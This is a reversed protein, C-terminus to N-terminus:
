LENEKGEELLTPYNLMFRRKYYYKSLFYIFILLVIYWPFLIAILIIFLFSGGRMYLTIFKRKHQVIAIIILPLSVISAVIILYDKLFCGTVLAISLTILCIYLTHEEGFRVATTIANDRKDGETDLITSISFISATAFFYPIAYAFLRWTFNSTTLWGVAFALIGYGIANSFIDIIPKAKFRFPPISYLLGVMLSCFLFVLYLLGFRFTLSFSIIVLLFSIISALKISVIGLPILFLKNNLRDSERDVIQNVIYVSGLLLSYAIFSLWFHHDLLISQKMFFPIKSLSFGKSRWYGALFFTWVPILMPPRILFLLDLPQLRLSIKSKEKIM